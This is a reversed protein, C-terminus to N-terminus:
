GTCFSQRCQFRRSTALTAREFLEWSRSQHASAPRRQGRRGTPIPRHCAYLQSGAVRTRAREGRGSLGPDSVVSLTVAPGTEETQEGRPTPAIPPPVNIDERDVHEIRRTLRDSARDDIQLPGQPPLDAETKPFLKEAIWSSGVFINTLSVYGVPTESNLDYLLGTDMNYMACPRGFLDFAQDGEVHGIQQGTKASYIPSHEAM